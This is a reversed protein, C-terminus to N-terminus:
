CLVSVILSSCLLWCKTFCCCHFSRYRFHVAHRRPDCSLPFVPALTCTNPLEPSSGLAEAPESVALGSLWVKAWSGWPLYFTFDFIVSAFCVCVHLPHQIKREKRREKKKKLFFLLCRYLVTYYVTNYLIYDQIIGISSLCICSPRSALWGLWIPSHWTWHSRTEFSVTSRNLFVGWTLRQSGYVHTYMHVQMIMCLCLCVCVDVQWWAIQRENVGGFEM